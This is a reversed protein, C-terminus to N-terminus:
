RSRELRADRVGRALALDVLLGILESYGTGAQGWLQPYMSIDTFGPLTNVENVYVHGEATLFMDVRSLGECGLVQYAHRAVLSLKALLEDDLGPAPILVQAADASEYKADYDYFGGGMVVEGIGSSAVVENGMVACELERGEIFSEVVVKHDYRFAEALAADFSAKDTAKRVGVSSGMCAPKVFLPLGLENAVAFFDISARAHAAFTRFPAVLLGADRLLRKTCDKDMCAASALVDPGVFPLDLQRLLGQLSGDEGLPGHTIPFVVDVPLVEGTAADRLAMRGAGPVMMLPRGTAVTAEAYLHAEAVALWRGQPDIGVLLVDFRSRDIAKYINRASRVSVEHEPSRGGFLLALTQM